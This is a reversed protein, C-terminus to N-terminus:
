THTDVVIRLHPGQLLIYVKSKTITLVSGGVNCIRVQLTSSNGVFVNGFDMITNSPPLWGGESTSITLQAIPATSASASLIIYESGGDTWVYFFGGYTGTGNTATFTIPISLSQSPAIISHVAPLGSSSFGNGMSYTGSGDPTSNTYVSSNGNGLTTTWAYGLITMNALGANSLVFSSTITPSTTNSLVVGGFDVTLPSLTLFASSSVETGTLSIPFQTSFGTVGNATFLTLATSKVGPQTDGFSANQADTVVVQSTNSGGMRKM